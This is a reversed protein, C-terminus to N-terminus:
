QSISGSTMKKRGEKAMQCSREWSGRCRLLRRCRPARRLGGRLAHLRLLPLLLVDHLHARRVRRSRCHGLARRGGPAARGVSARAVAAGLQEPEIVAVM